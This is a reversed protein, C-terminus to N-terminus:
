FLIDLKAMVSAESDAARGVQEGFSLARGCEGLCGANAAPVRQRDINEPVAAVDNNGILTEPSQDQAKHRLAQAAVSVADHGVGSRRELGQDFEGDIGSQLPQFRKGSNRARNARGNEAVGSGVSM